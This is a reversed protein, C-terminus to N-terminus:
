SWPRACAGTGLSSSDTAQGQRIGLPVEEVAFGLRESFLDALLDARELHQCAPSYPQSLSHMTGLRGKAIRVDGGARCCM